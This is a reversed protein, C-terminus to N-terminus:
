RAFEVQAMRYLQVAAAQMEGRSAFTSSINANLTVTRGYDGLSARPMRLAASDASGGVGMNWGGVNGLAAAAQAVGGGGGPIIASLIASVIQRAILKNIWTLMDSIMARFLRKGMDAFEVQKTQVLAMGRAWVDAWEYAGDVLSTSLSAGQEEVSQIGDRLADYADRTDEVAVAIDQQVDLIPKLDAVEPMKFPRNVSTFSYGGLTALGLKSAMEGGRASMTAIRDPGPQLDPYPLGLDAGVPRPGRLSGSGVREAILKALAKDGLRDVAVKLSVPKESMKQLREWASIVPIIANNRAAALQRTFRDWADAAEDAAKVQGPSMILNLDHAKKRVAEIKDPGEALVSLVDMYARGFLDSAVKTRISQSELGNLRRTIDILLDVPSVKEIDKASLGIKKLADGALAAENGLGTANKQLTVMGRSLTEFDADLQSSIFDLEQVATTTTGLKKSLEDFRSVSAVTASFARQIGLAMAGASLGVALLAKNLTALDAGASAVGTKTEDKSRIIIDIVKRIDPM